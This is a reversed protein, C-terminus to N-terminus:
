LIRASHLDTSTTLAANFNSLSLDPWVQYSDGSQQMDIDAVQGLQTSSAMRSMFSPDTKLQALTPLCAPTGYTAM